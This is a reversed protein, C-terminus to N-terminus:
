SCSSCKEVFSKFSNCKIALEPKDLSALLFIYKKIYRNFKSAILEKIFEDSKRDIRSLMDLILNIMYLLDWIIYGLGAVYLNSSLETINLNNLLYPIYGYVQRSYTFNFNTYWKDILSTDSSSLEIIDSPIYYTPKDHNCFPVLDFLSSIYSNRNYSYHYNCASLKLSCYNDDNFLTPDIQEHFSTENYRFNNPECINVRDDVKEMHMLSQFFYVTKGDSLETLELTAKAKKKIKKLIHPNSNIYINMYNVFTNMASVKALYLIKLYQIDNEKLKEIFTDDTAVIRADIDSTPVKNDLYQNIGYGGVIVIKLGQFIKFSSQKFNKNIEEIANVMIPELVEFINEQVEYFISETM